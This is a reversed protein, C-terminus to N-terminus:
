HSPLQLKVILPVESKGELGMLNHFLYPLDREREEHFVSKLEVVFNSTLLPILLFYYLTVRDKVGNVGRKTTDAFYPFKIL